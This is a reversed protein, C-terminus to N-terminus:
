RESTRCIRFGINNDTDTPFSINRGACTLQSDYSTWSGGRTLRHMGGEAGLPDEQAAGNYSEYWDGCWEYVNGAMEYLGLASVGQPYSGVPSTWGVCEPDSAFNAYSCDPPDEGWPYIRGDNFRAAYEWEAETPLRYGDSTYPDHGNNQEWVGLYFPPIGDMGSLWDCYCAAGYWSVEMVPHDASGPEVVFLGADFQVRCDADDLDLLEQGYAQVTNADATVFGLDFAWQVADRYDQNSIECSSLLFDHTLTVAHAPSSWHWEDDGMTFSGATVQIYGPIPTSEGEAVVHFFQRSSIEYNAVFPSHEVYALVGGDGYPQEGQSYVCYQTADAIEEWSLTVEISDGTLECTVTVQPSDLAYTVLPTL